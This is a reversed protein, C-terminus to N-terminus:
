VGLSSLCADVRRWAEANWEDDDVADALLAAELEDLAGRHEPGLVAFREWDVPAGLPRGVFLPVYVSTCPSGLLVSARPRPGSPLEAVISATTAEVDPVHMCVTWGDCGVHSRLHAQVATLEVPDAALVARSAELRPDVLTAVPQKPHRHEADFAPITTRNSIARTDGVWEAAWAKGSTELVWAESPDAVLFSSWYPRDISVHGSGGQGYRELLGVMVELAARATMARQLGLRVLDMGVLAPAAGRPDLTTYITENGIAVGAENVGHEVGWLWWPRSVLAGVTDGGGAEIEIYTARVAEDDATPPLWEIRQPEDPPRDSNKAFITRGEATARPLAVLCDCM